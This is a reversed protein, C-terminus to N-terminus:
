TGPPPRAHLLQRRHGTRPPPPPGPVRSGAEREAPARPWRVPLGGDWGADASLQGRAGGDGGTGPRSAPLGSESAPSWAPGPTPAPPSWEGQLAGPGSSAKPGRDLAQGEGLPGAHAYPRPLLPVLARSGGFGTSECLVHDRSHTPCFSSGFSMRARSVGPFAQFPRSLGPNPACRTLSSRGQDRQGQFFGGLNPPRLCSAQARVGWGGRSDPEAGRWCPARHADYRLGRPPPTQRDAHSQPRAPRRAYPRPEGRTSPLGKSAPSPGAAFLGQSSSHRAKGRALILASNADSRFRLM